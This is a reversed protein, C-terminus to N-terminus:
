CVLVRHYDAWDYLQSLWGSAEELWTAPDDGIKEDTLFEVADEFEVGTTLEGHREACRKFATAIMSACAEIEARAALDDKIQERLAGFRLAAEKAQVTFRWKLGNAAVGDVAAMSYPM